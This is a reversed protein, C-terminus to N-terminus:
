AAKGLLRVRVAQSKRRQEAIVLRVNCHAGVLEGNGVADTAQAPTTGLQRGTITVPRHSGIAVVGDAPDCLPPLFVV